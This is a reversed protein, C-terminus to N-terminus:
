MSKCLIWTNGPFLFYLMNSSYTYVRDDDDCASVTELYEGSFVFFM